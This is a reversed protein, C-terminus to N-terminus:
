KVPALFKHILKAGKANLIRVGGARYPAQTASVVVGSVLLNGRSDRCFLPGGSMGGEFYVGQSEWFGGRVRDFRRKTDVTLPFDGNNPRDAGYGIITKQGTTNSIRSLDTTWGAHAGEAVPRSFRLGGLDVAFSRANDGGWHNARAKYGGLLYVRTAFQESLVADGYAGRRFELETSWGTRRDYLNHGATLVADPTIVVGSGLYDGRGSKFFIQGVLTYPDTRAVSLAVREPLDAGHLPVLQLLLAALLAPLHKM